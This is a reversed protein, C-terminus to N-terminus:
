FWKLNKKHTNQLQKTTLWNVNHVSVIFVLKDKIRKVNITYLTMMQRIIEHWARKLASACQILQVCDISNFSFLHFMPSKQSKDILHSLIANIFYFLTRNIFLWKQEFWWRFHHTCGVNLKCKRCFWSWTM